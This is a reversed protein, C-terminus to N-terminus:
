IILGGLGVIADVVYRLLIIFWATIGNIIKRNAKEKRLYKKQPKIKPSSASSNGRICYKKPIHSKLTIKKLNNPM